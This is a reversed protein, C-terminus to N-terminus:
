TMTVGYNVTEPEPEDCRIELELRGGNLRCLTIQIGIRREM